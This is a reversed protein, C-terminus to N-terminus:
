RASPQGLSAHRVMLARGLYAIIAINLALASLKLLNGGETLEYVEFPLYVCGSVVALWEAWRRQSWLGYAEAFRIASDAIAAFALLGLWGDTLQSTARLFLQPFRSAPNCHLFELSRIVLAHVDRHLLSACGLGVLFMLAAKLGEFLAVLKFGNFRQM